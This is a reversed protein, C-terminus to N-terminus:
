VGRTRTLDPGATARRASPTSQFIFLNLPIGVVLQRGGRPPRPNFYRPQTKSTTTCVTARRASPTSQFQKRTLRKPRANLRGGRPPRPNFYTCPHPQIGFRCDGEERLAHISIKGQATKDSLAPTARRASPTSQFQEDVADAHVGREDGEERLAHISIELLKHLSIVLSIDGEERLAHISIGHLVHGTHLQATARRASPTSQFIQIANLAARPAGTARRASPTSQFESEGATHQSTREDGEERLAHISIPLRHPPLGPCRTARRASPTSQFERLWSLLKDFM